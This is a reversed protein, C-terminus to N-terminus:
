RSLPEGAKAQRAFWAIPIGVLFIHPFLGIAIKVPDTQPFNEPYRLTLVIGYMVIYLLLGYITGAMWPNMARLRASRAYATFYVATMAAMIAFHVGLGALAAGAGWGKASEGFPGDAVGSWVQAPSVGRLASMITAYAADLVGATLWAKAYGM